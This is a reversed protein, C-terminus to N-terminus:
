AANVPGHPRAAVAPARRRAAGPRAPPLSARWRPLDEVHEGAADDRDPRVVPALPPGAVRGATARRAEGAGGGLGRREYTRRTSRTSSAVSASGGPSACPVAVSTTRRTGAAAVSPALWGSCPPTTPSM